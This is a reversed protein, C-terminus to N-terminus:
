FKLDKEAKTPELYAAKLLDASIFKKGMSVRCIKVASEDTEEEIIEFGSYEKIKERFENINIICDPSIREGAAFIAAYVLEGRAKKIVIAKKIGVAAAELSSVGCVPINDPFALGKATAIGIRIGTYSGPGVDVAIGDIESLSLEARELASKVSPLLDVSHSRNATFTIGSLIKDDECVAASLIKGSTKIGLLKM